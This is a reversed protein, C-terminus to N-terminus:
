QETTSSEAQKSQQQSCCLFLSPTGERGLSLWSRHRYSHLASPSTPEEHRARHPPCGMHNMPFGQEKNESLLTLTKWTRMRATIGKVRTRSHTAKGAGTNRGLTRGSITECAEGRDPYPQAHGDWIPKKTHCGHCKWLSINRNSYIAPSVHLTKQCLYMEMLLFLSMPPLSPFSVMLLLKPSQLLLHPKCM